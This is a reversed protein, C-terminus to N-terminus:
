HLDTSAALRLSTVKTNQNGFTSYLFSAISPGGQIKLFHTSRSEITIKGM